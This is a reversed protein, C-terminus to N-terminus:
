VAGKIAIYGEFNLCKWFTDVQKFGANELLEINGNHTNPVLVGELAKKKAFIQEDTYGNDRKIDYYSDVYLKDFQANPQLIKEVLIFAGNDKLAKYIDSLLEPRKEIPVFQITLISTIINYIKPGYYFNAIDGEGVCINILETDPYKALRENAKDVMEISKDLGDFSGGLEGYKELFLELNIGNSCGLDLMSFDNTVFPKAVRLTLDRLTNYDPISRALMDDFCDAVNKDFEWKGNAIIEDKNM